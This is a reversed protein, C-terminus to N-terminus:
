FVIALDGEYGDNMSPFPNVFSGYFLRVPIQISPNFALLAAWPLWRLRAYRFAEEASCMGDANDDIKQEFAQGLLSSFSIEITTGTLVQHHQWHASLGSGSASMLVVRNSGGVGGTFASRFATIQCRKNATATDVFSGSYCCEFILCMEQCQIADLKADLEDVTIFGGDFYGDWPWIGYRGQHYTGHSDVAFLVTDNEDANDRLWDLSSLINERTAAEKWLLRIHSPNWNETTVLADYIYPELSEGLAVVVVAWLEKGDDGNSETLYGPPFEVRLSSTVEDSAGTFTYTVPLAATLLLGGVLISTLRNM